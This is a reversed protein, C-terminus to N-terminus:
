PDYGAAFPNKNGPMYKCFIIGTVYLFCLPGAMLLMSIPDAPTLFMSLIFIVVVAIRWKKVFVDVPILGIRQAFLMVLPLQFALGFGLPLFLVFSMWESIRPDPDIDMARNFSFLFDLVPEFVFLFALASGAFFLLLSIPLYRHIYNKEHPYLGAAIFSWIYYFIFPSAFVFGSIFGAKMWIMFAEHANLTQVRIDVKDWTQVEFQQLSDPPDFPKNFGNPVLKQLDRLLAQADIQITNPVMRNELREKMLEEQKERLEKAKEKTLGEGLIDASLSEEMEQRASELYYNELATKLPTQILMVVQNAAGLGLLFGVGLALAAKVLVGRLEELHEGFSMSTDAFLDDQPQKSM